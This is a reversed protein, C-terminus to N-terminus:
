DSALDLETAVAALRRDRTWLGAEPTLLVSALLHADVWGIGRGILRYREILGLVETDTAVSAQPLDGLLSLIEARNRLNGCALEGVVFPHGLVLGRELLDSLVPENARLHDIWVSSHVLIV